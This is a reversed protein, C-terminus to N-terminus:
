PTVRATSARIILKPIVVVRRKRATQWAAEGARMSIILRVAQMGMTDLMHSVVTMPPSAICAYIDDFGIVSMGRPVTLGCDRLGDYLGLAITENYCVAATARVPRAARQSVAQRAAAIVDTIAGGPPLHVALRECAMGLRRTAASFARYRLREVSGAQHPGCWWVRRHGLRHLHTVARAIGAAHDLTVVPLSTPACDGVVVIPKRIRELARLQAGHCLFAPVILGDVRGEDLFQLSSALVDGAANPGTMVFHCGADRAGIEVGCIMAATFGNHMDRVDLQPVVMGIADSRGTQLATAFYNRRYGMQAAVQRVRAICATSYAQWGPARNIIKSATCISVGAQAAIERLQAM